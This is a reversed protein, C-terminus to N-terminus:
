IFIRQIYICMCVCVCVCVCVCMCVYIDVCMCMYLTGISSPDRHCLSIAKVSIAEEEEAEFVCVFIRIYTYKCHIYICVCVCVYVCVCVCIYTCVRMCMYPTDISSPDSHRLLVSILKQEGGSVCMFLYSYMCIYLIHIYICECVCVYM